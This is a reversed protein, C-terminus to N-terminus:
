SEQAALEKHILGQAVAAALIQLGMLEMAVQAAEAQVVAAQAALEELVQKPLDEVEV